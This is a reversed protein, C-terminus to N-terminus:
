SGWVLLGAGHLLLGVLGGILTGNVRIFQLDAGVQNEIRAILENAEWSDVTRNVLKEASDGYRGFFLSAMEAARDEIEAMRKEDNLLRTAAESLVESWRDITGNEHL